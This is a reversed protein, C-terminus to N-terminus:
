VVKGINEMLDPYFSTFESEYEPYHEQLEAAAEEMRSQFRTRQALGRFALDIGETTRYEYFLDNEIAYHLFRRSRSPFTSQQESLIQYIRDVFTRLDERHYQKWHHALFHDYFVDAIVPAYKHFRPRLRKKSALVVEHTDTYHDIKRHLLIGEQIERSYQHFGDGRVGDGIFNGILLNQDEGSLHLHALYNM